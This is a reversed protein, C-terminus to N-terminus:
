VQLSWQLSLVWIKNKWIKFKKEWGEFLLGCPLTQLNWEIAHIVVLLLLQSLNRSKM